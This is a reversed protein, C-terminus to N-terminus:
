PHRPGYGDDDVVAPPRAEALAKGLLGLDGRSWCTITSRGVRVRRVPAVGHRRALGAVARPDIRLFLAAEGTTFTMRPSRMDGM